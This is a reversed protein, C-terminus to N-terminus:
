DETTLTIIRGHTRAKSVPYSGLSYWVKVNTLTDAASGNTVKVKIYGHEPIDLFKTVQHTKSAEYTLAFTAYARSDWNSGDPSYYVDIVTDANISGGFTAQVTLSLTRADVLDISGPSNLTGSAAVLAATFWPPETYRM